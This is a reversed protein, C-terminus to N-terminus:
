NLWGASLIVALSLFLALCTWTLRNLTAEASSASSFMSSGSAALGGMGDGKPSHLLVLVILLLGTGIWSWSLISTLMLRFSSPSRNQPHSGHQVHTCDPKPRDHGGTATSRSDAAVDSRYRGPGGNDRLTIANGHGPLKRREGEILIAPVPNTTHATWAQGDPGQMLEANGHDATILMTGGQRGVADLLRGICGDVTQIAEKAADMVGTHGVMDPNAYNIVVLSYDAKEIASICSDTLQEASMAPSLDYTAVRPSPVLHREEGSLPQEIGGNMFYTVHPYKETEATRYQKLGADAVM